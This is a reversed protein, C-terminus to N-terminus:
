WYTLSLTYWLSCLFCPTSEKEVTKSVVSNQLRSTSRYRMDFCCILHLIEAPILYLPWIVCYLHERSWGPKTWNFLQLLVKPLLHLNKYQLNNIDTISDNHSLSKTVQSWSIYYRRFHFISDTTVTFLASQLRYNGPLLIQLPNLWHKQMAKWMNQVKNASDM